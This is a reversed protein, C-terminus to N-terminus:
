EDPLGLSQLQWEDPWTPALYRTPYEPREDLLGGLTTLVRDFPVLAVAEEDKRFLVADTKALAAPRGEDWETATFTNGARDQLMHVPSVRTQGDERDILRQLLEGQRDYDDKENLAHLLKLPAFGGNEQPPLWHVWREDVLRLPRLWLFTGRREAERRAARGLNFLAEEDDGDALMLCDDFPAVVVPPGDLALGFGDVFLIRAADFRDKWPSRWVGPFEKSGLWPELPLSRARLNEAAAELAQEPTVSWREIDETLVTSIADPQPWALEVVLHETLEAAPLNPVKLGELEHRLPWCAHVVRPRIRVLVGQRAEEWTEPMQRGRLFVQVYRRLWDERDDETLRRWTNWAEGLYFADPMTENILRESPRDYAINGAIGAARLAETVREAFVALDSSEPAQSM